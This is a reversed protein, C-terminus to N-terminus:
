NRERMMLLNQHNEMLLRLKGRSKSSLRFIGLGGGPGGFGGGPGGFGRGPGSQAAPLNYVQATSITFIIYFRNVGHDPEFM